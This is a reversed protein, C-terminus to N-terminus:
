FKKWYKENKQVGRVCLIKKQAKQGFFVKSKHVQLAVHGNSGGFISKLPKNKFHGQGTLVRVDRLGYLTPNISGSVLGM